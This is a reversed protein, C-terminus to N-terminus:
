IALDLAYLTNFKEVGKTCCNKCTKRCHLLSATDQNEWEKRRKEARGEKGEETVTGSNGTSSSQKKRKHSKAMAKPRRYSKGARLNDLLWTWTKWDYRWCHEGNSSRIDFGPDKKYLTKGDFPMVNLVRSELINGCALWEYSHGKTAPIKPTSHRLESVSLWMEYPSAELQALTMSGADEYAALADEHIWADIHVEQISKEEKTTKRGLNFLLRFTTKITEEVEGHITVARFRSTDIEAIAVREAIRKSVGEVSHFKARRLADGAMIDTIMLHSNSITNEGLNSFASIYSTPDIKQNWIMHREIRKRTLDRALDFKEISQFANGELLKLGLNNRHKVHTHRYAIDALTM